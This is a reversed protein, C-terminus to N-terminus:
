LNKITDEVYAITPDASPLRSQMYEELEKEILNLTRNTLKCHVFRNDYLDKM